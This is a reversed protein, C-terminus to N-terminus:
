LGNETVKKEGIHIAAIGGTLPYDEVNVLGVEAFIKALNKRNPFNTLSTPLWAYQEYSNAFIKGLLPLIKKFYFYYFQRFIPMTPQSLELSVVKGGPKVVRTMEALVQKIDPVNRLAFGITAYDFQNDAFPLDMANGEVLDVEQQGARDLKDRALELMNTSFDLGVIQGSNSDKALDITWDGTGCCVDIASQGPKIQLKKMTKRRWLKHFRFSTLDNMFDYKPAINEFVSHVYEEKATGELESKNLYIVEM